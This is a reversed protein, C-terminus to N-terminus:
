WEGDDFTMKRAARDLAWVLAAPVGVVLLFLLLHPWPATM